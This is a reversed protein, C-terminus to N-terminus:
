CSRVHEHVKKNTRGNGGGIPTKPLHATSHDAFEIAYQGVEPDVPNHANETRTQYSHGSTISTDTSRVQVRKHAGRLILTTGVLFEM